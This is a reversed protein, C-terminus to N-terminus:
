KGAPASGQVVGGDVVAAVNAVVIRQGEGIGSIIEVDSGYLRGTKVLRYTVVSDAGVVYVGTLQGKAVVAEQPVLVARKRGVNFLAKAYQGSRLSTGEVKLKVVFSRSLPDVVPVVEVVKGTAPFPAGSIEVDAVMGAKVVDLLSEDLNVEVKYVSDDEVAILPMGPAAMSGSDIMKQSVVGDVPSAVSAFGLYVKAENLGAETRRLMASIREYEHEAVSKATAVNDLEQTSVAREDHLKKYREYTKAALEKQSLASSQAQEAENYAQEAATVRARLDRDDISILLQGKRVRQGERVHVATVAGMVRSSVSSVTLARVTGTAEHYLEVERSKVEAVSVGTIVARGSQAQEHKKGCGALAVLAVAMAVIMIHRVRTIM